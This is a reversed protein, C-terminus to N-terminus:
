GCLKSLLVAVPVHLVLDFADISTAALCEFTNMMEVDRMELM